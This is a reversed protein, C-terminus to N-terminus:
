ESVLSSSAEDVRDVGELFDAFATLEANLQAWLPALKRALDGIRQPDLHEAYVNRVVHRFRRYEDLAQVMSESMVPPHIGPVDLTM